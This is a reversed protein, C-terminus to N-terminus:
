YELVQRDIKKTLINIQELWGIEREQTQELWAM